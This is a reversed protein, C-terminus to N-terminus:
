PAPRAEPATKRPARRKRGAIKRRVPKPAAPPEPEAQEVEFLPHAAFIAIEDDTLDFETLWLGHVFLHRFNVTHTEEGVYRIRIM